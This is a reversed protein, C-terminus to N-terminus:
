VDCRLAGLYIIQTSGDTTTVTFAEECPCCIPGLATTLTVNDSATTNTAPRTSGTRRTSVTITAATSSDSTSVGVILYKGGAVGPWARSGPVSATALISYGAAARIAALATASGAIETIATDAAYIAMKATSSAAVAAMATSSAAVAAM